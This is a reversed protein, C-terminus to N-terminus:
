ILCVINGYKLDYDKKSFELRVRSGVVIEPQRLSPQNEKFGLCFVTVLEGKDIKVRFFGRPLIVRVSGSLIKPNHKWSGYTYLPEPLGGFFMPYSSVVSLFAVSFVFLARM